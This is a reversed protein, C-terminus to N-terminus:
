ITINVQFGRQALAFSLQASMTSKGVGGKGSLILIKHKILSMRQQIHVLAPDVAQGAGSACSSQNPCGACSSAKGASSSAPGVCVENVNSPKDGEEM